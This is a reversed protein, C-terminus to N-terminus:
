MESALTVEMSSEKVNAGVEEEDEDDTGEDEEEGENWAEDDKGEDMDEDDDDDHESSVSGVFALRSARLASNARMDRLRFAVRM